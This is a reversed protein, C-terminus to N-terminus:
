FQRVITDVDDEFLFVKAAWTLTKEAISDDVDELGKLYAAIVEDFDDSSEIRLAKLGAEQKEDEDSSALSPKITVLEKVRDDIDEDFASSARSHALPPPKAEAQRVTPLPSKPPSLPEVQAQSNSPGPRELTNSDTGPITRSNECNEETRGGSQGYIEILPRYLACM